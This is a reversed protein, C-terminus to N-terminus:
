QMTLHAATVSSQIVTIGYMCFFALEYQYQNTCTGVTLVRM